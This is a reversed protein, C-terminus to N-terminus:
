ACWACPACIYIAHHSQRYTQQRNPRACVCVRVWIRISMCLIIDFFQVNYKSHTYMPMTEICTLRRDDRESNEKVINEVLLNHTCTYEDRTQDTDRLFISISPFLSLSRTFSRSFVSHYKIGNCQLLPLHKRVSRRFIHSCNEGIASSHLFRSKSTACSLGFIGNIWPSIHAVLHIDISHVNFCEVNIILQAKRISRTFFIKQCIEIHFWSSLTRWLLLMFRPNHPSRSIFCFISNPKRNRTFRFRNPKTSHSM